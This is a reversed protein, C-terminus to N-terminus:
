GKIIKRLEEVSLKVDFKEKAEKYRNEAEKNREDAHMFRDLDQATKAVPIGLAWCQVTKNESKYKWRGIEMKPLLAFDAKQIEDNVTEIDWLINTVPCDTTRYNGESIVILELGMAGLKMTAQDLVEANHSYGFWVVKKATGEHKKPEPLGDFDVRDPIVYIPKDTMNALEEKLAESPVTVADMYKLISMIELGDLWDPDCIDLIKKGKFARIHEKWYAKQYIVCKYDKGQVFLEAEPMYKLLWRARIRSSGINKRQWFNEFTLFAIDKM